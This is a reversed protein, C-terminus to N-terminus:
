DHFTTGQPAVFYQYSTIGKIPNPIHKEAEEKSPYLRGTPRINKSYFRSGGIRENVIVVEYIEYMM